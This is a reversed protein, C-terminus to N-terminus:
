LKTQRALTFGSLDVRPPEGMALAVAAEGIAPAFKYGHGSCAAVLVSGDAAMDLIFRHDATNTFRCIEYADPPPCDPLVAKVAEALMARDIDDVPLSRRYQPGCQERHHYVGLKWRGGTGNPLAYIRRGDPFVRQFPPVNDPGDFLGIVQREVTLAADLGAHLQGGWPGAAVIVREVNFAGGTTHLRFGHDLPDIATVACDWHLDAGDTEALHAMAANATESLLYGSGHAHVALLDDAIDLAPCRQRLGNADIVEHIQGSARAARRVGAMFPSDATAIDMGGSSLFIRTGAAAEIEPWLAFARDLLENYLAGESYIRRIMRTAGHSSGRAHGRSFRDFGIVAIGRRSAAWASALGMAGLGIIGIAHM